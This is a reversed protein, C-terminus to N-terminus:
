RAGECFIIVRVTLMLIVFDLLVGRNKVYYLDYALKERADAESAGYPVNVQAWGTLGPKIVFRHRYFPIVLALQEVFAPREPRPGIMSMEGRLVNILQPLEDIRTARIVAGVRTIRPDNERAWQPVGDAEANVSMSRFKLLTFPRGHLGTREQRYFVPGGGDLRILIATLLLLPLTAIILVLSVVVDCGRKVARSVWTDRFGESFLTWVTDDSDLEIRGLRRELFSKESFIPVGRLRRDLLVNRLTPEPVDDALVVGALRQKRRAGRALPEDVVESVPQFRFTSESSLRQRLRGVRAGSGVLLIQRTMPMHSALVIFGFRIALGILLWTAVLGSAFLVTDETLGVDFVASVLLLLPLVLFAAVAGRLLFRRHDLCIDRRYLGIVAAVCVITLGLAVALSRCEGPPVVRALVSPAADVLLGYILTVTMSLEVFGLLALEPSMLQVVARTM